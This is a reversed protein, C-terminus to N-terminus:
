LLAGLFRVAATHARSNVGQVGLRRLAQGTNLGGKGEHTGM